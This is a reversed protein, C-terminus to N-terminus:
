IYDLHPGSASALSLVTIRAAAAEFSPRPAQEAQGRVQKNDWWGARRLDILQVLVRSHVLGALDDAAKDGDGVLHGSHGECWVALHKAQLAETLVLQDVSAPGHEGAQTGQDLLGDGAVAPHGCLHALM